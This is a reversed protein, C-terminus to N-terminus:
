FNFGLFILSAEIRNEMRRAGNEASKKSTRVRAQKLAELIDMAIMNSLQNHPMYRNLYRPATAEGFTKGKLEIQFRIEDNIEQEGNIRTTIKRPVQETLPKKNTIIWTDAKRARKRLGPSKAIPTEFIARQKKTFRRPRPEGTQWDRINLYGTVKKSKRNVIEGILYINNRPKKIVRGTVVSRYRVYETRKLRKRFLSKKLRKKPRGPGKGRAM